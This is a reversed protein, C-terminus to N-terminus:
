RKMLTFLHAHEPICPSWFVAEPTIIRCSGTWKIECGSQTTRTGNTSLASRWTCEWQKCILRNGKPQLHAWHIYTLFKWVKQTIINNRCRIDAPPGGKQTKTKSSFDKSTRTINLRGKCPKTMDSKKTKETSFVSNLETCVNWLYEVVSRDFTLMVWSCMFIHLRELLREGHGFTQYSILLLSSIWQYPCQFCM